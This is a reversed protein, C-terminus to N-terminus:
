ANLKQKLEKRGSVGTKEYIHSLHKKVTTEAIFLTEAIQMNSYGNMVLLGIETERRTWGHAGAFELYKQKDFGASKELEKSKKEGQQERRSILWFLTGSVGAMLLTSGNVILRMGPNLISYYELTITLIFVIAYLVLLIIIKPRKMKWMWCIQLRM